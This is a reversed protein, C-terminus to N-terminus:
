GEVPEVIWVLMVEGVAAEEDVVAAASVVDSDGSIVAL